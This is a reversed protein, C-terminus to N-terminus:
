QTEASSVGGNLAPLFARRRLNPNPYAEPLITGIHFSRHRDLQFRRWLLRLRQRLQLGLKSLRAILDHRKRSIVTAPVTNRKVMQSIVRHAFGSFQARLHYAVRDLGYGIRVFNQLQALPISHRYDTKSLSSANVEIGTGIPQYPIGDGEVGQRAASHDFHGDAVKLSAVETNSFWLFRHQNVPTPLPEKIKNQIQGIGHRSIATADEAHIKSFVVEGRGGAPLNKTSALKPVNTIPVQRQPATKLGVATFRCPLQQAFDRAFFPPVHTVDVVFRALRNHFLRQFLADRGNSHFLQGMNALPDFSSLTHTGAQVAPSPSLQLNKDFVLGFRGTNPHNVDIRGVTGLGTRDTAAQPRTNLM